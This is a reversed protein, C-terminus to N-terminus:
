KSYYGKYQNTKPNMFHQRLFTKGKRIKQNLYKNIEKELKKQPVLNMDWGTSKKITDVIEKQIERIGRGLQRARNKMWSWGESTAQNFATYQVQPMSLNEDSLYHLTRSSIGTKILKDNTDANINKIKSITEAQRVKNYQAATLEKQEVANSTRTQQKIYDMNIRSLAAALGAAGPDKPDSRAGQPTSAGGKMASLMPNLGAKRLDQVARQHATSSMERQFEMQERATAQAMKNTKRQSQAGIIAGFIEGIPM